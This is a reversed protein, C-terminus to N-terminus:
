AGHANPVWRDVLWLQRGGITEGECRCGLGARSHLRVLAAGFGHFRSPAVRRDHLLASDPRAPPRKLVATALRAAGSRLRIMSTTPENYRGVPLDAAPMM